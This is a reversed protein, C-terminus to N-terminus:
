DRKKPLLAYSFSGALTAVILTTELNESFSAAGAFYFTLTLLASAFGARSAKSIKINDKFLMVSFYSDGISWCAIAIALTLTHGIYTIPPSNNAITLATITLFLFCAFTAIILELKSTTRSNLAKVTLYDSLRGALQLSVQILYAAIVYEKGNSEDTSINITPLMFVANSGTMWLIAHLGHQLTAKKKLPTTCDFPTHNNFIVKTFLLPAINILSRGTIFHEAALTNPTLFLFLAAIVILTTISQLLRIRTTINPNNKKSTIDVYGAIFASIILIADLPISKTFITWGLTLLTTAALTKILNSYTANKGLSSQTLGTAIGPIAGLLHATALSSILQIGENADLTKIAASTYIFLLLPGSIISIRFLM